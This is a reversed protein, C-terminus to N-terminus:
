NASLVGDVTWRKTERSGQGCLLEWGIRKGAVKSQVISPAVISSHLILVVQSSSSSNKELRDCGFIGEGFTNRAESDVCSLVSAYRHLHEKWIM